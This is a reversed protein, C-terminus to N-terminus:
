SFLLRSRWFLMERSGTAMGTSPDRLPIYPAPWARTVRLWPEWQQIVGEFLLCHRAM